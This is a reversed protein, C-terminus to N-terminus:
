QKRKFALHLDHVFAILPRITMQISGILFVLGLVVDNFQYLAKYIATIRDSAQIQHFSLNLHKSSQKFKSM